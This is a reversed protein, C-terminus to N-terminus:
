DKSIEVTRGDEYKLVDNITFTFNLTEREANARCAKYQLKITIKKDMFNDFSDKASLVAFIEQKKQPQVQYRLYIPAGKKKDYMKFTPNQTEIYSGGISVNFFHYLINFELNPIKAHATEVLMTVHSKNTIDIDFYLEDKDSLPSNKCKERKFRGVHVEPEYQSKELEIQKKSITTQEKAIEAQEKAIEAQEKLIKSQRHNNYFLGGTFIAVLLASLPNLWDGGFRDIIAIFTVVAFIIWLSILRNSWKM